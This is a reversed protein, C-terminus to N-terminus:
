ALTLESTLITDGDGTERDIVETETANSRYVGWEKGNADRVTDGNKFNEM